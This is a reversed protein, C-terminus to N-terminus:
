LIIALLSFLRYGIRSVKTADLEIIEAIKEAHGSLANRLKYADSLLASDMLSDLEQQDKSLKVKKPRKKHSIQGKFNGNRLVALEIRCVGSDYQGLELEEKIHFYFLSIFSYFIDGTHFYFFFM